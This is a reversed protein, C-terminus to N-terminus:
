AGTVLDRTTVRHFTEQLSPLLRPVLFNVNGCNATSLGPFGFIGHNTSMRSTLGYVALLNLGANNVHKM